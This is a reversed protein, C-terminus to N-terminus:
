NAESRLINYSDILKKVVKKDDTIQVIEYNSGFSEKKWNASGFIATKSDVIALKIHQKKITKLLRIKKSLKLKSKDYILTVDVGRKIARKLAKHFRKYSMNYMAIDITENANDLLKEIKNKVEKSENPLFYIKDFSYANFTLLLSLFLARFM